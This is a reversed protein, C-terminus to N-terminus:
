ESDRAPCKLERRDVHYSQGTCALWGPRSEMESELVSGQGEEEAREALVYALNSAIGEVEETPWQDAHEEAQEAELGGLM